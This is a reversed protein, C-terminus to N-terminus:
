TASAAFLPLEIRRSGGATTHVPVGWDQQHVHCAPNAVSDDDCSAARVSVHLVGEVGDAVQLSRTLGTGNGAGEVLLQPPAASVTLFTAPGYRDDLKQGKPPTFAVVLDVDGPAVDIPPRHTRQANGDVTRGVADPLPVRVLRHAASEVVLLADGDVVVGSPEALDTALTTVEAGVPDYRRVAGNYTDAVAVSGDPLMAVGLPHQLLAVEAPGDRHGFDFLGQGVATNVVGNRVRRLSSTEADVFWLTEGEADVTLGSPQALWAQGGVGDVLGESTTGAIVGVDGTRPDFRWLQHIGAMGIALADDFWVVDWPSSLQELSDGRMWQRGDGLVTTVAGDSLRVGRLAHNVTDAVVVDYGVNTAVREPLLCLGNPESFTAVDPGGDVLGGIDAASRARSPPSTPQSSWWATTGPM